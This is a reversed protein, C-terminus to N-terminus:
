EFDRLGSINTIVIYKGKVAILGSNQLKNMISSFTEPTINLMSAIVMKNAPLSFGDSSSSEMSIQLLYGILRQTCNQLSISKLDKVLQCNRTSFVTLMRGALKVDKDIMGLIADKSILLVQSDMMTHAYMPFSNDSFITEEGFSQGSEILGIVKECGDLSTVGLKVQGKLLLYFGHTHKIRNFLIADRSVDLYKTSNTLLAIQSPFLDTFLHHQSLREAIQTKTM